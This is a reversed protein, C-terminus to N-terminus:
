RTTAPRCRRCGTSATRARRSSRPGPLVDSRAEVTVGPLVGGGTDAVKGSIAGTQQAFAPGATLIFALLVCSRRLSSLM